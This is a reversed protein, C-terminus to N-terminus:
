WAYSQSHAPHVSVWSCLLVALLCRATRALTAGLSIKQLFVHGSNRPAAGIDSFNNDMTANLQTPVTMKEKIRGAM